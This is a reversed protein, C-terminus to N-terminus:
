SPYTDPIFPSLEAWHNRSNQEKASSFQARRLVVEAPMKGQKGARGAAARTADGRGASVCERFRAAQSNLRLGRLSCESSALVAGV